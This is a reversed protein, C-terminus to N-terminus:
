ARSATTSSFVMELQKRSFVAEHMGASLLPGLTWAGPGAVSVGDRYSIGM